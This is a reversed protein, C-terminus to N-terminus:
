ASPTTMLITLADTVRGQLDLPANGAQHQAHQLADLIPTSSFVDYATRWEAPLLSFLYDATERDSPGDSGLKSLHVDECNDDRCTGGGPIEYQCLRKSTDLHKSYSLLRLPRLDPIFSSVRSSTDNTSFRTYTTHVSPSYLTAPSGPSPRLHDYPTSTHDRLLPYSAFPSSYSNFRSMELVPPPQNRPPESSSSEQPVPQPSKRGDQKQLPSPVTPNKNM